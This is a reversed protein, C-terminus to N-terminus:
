KGAETLGTARLEALREAVLQTRTRGDDTIREAALQAVYQQHAIVWCAECTRIHPAPPYQNTQHSPLLTRPQVAGIQAYDSRGCWPCEYVAAYAAANAEDQKRNAMMQAAVGIAVHHQYVAIRRAPERMIDAALEKLRARREEVRVYHDAFLSNRPNGEKPSGVPLGLQDRGYWEEIDRDTPGMPPRDPLPGETADLYAAAVTLAIGHMSDPEAFPDAAAGAALGESWLDDPIGGPRILEPYDPRDPAPAPATAARKTLIPM